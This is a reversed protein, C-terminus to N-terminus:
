KGELELLRENLKDIGEQMKGIQSWIDRKSADLEDELIDVKPRLTKHSDRKFLNDVKGILDFVTNNFERIDIKLDEVDDKLDKDFM